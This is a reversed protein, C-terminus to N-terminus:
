GGTKVDQGLLIVTVLVGPVHPAITVQNAGMAFSLQGPVTTVCVEPKDLPDVKGIPTDVIEYVAVSAFPKVLTHENVTVTVSPSNGTKVDHGVFIVKFM